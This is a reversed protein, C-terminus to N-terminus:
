FATLFQMTGGKNSYLKLQMMAESDTMMWFTEMEKCDESSWFLGEDDDEM